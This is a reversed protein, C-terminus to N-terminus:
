EDYVFHGKRGNARWYDLEAQTIPSPIYIGRPDDDIWIDADYFDKKPKGDCYIVDLGYTEAITDDNPNRATVIKVEHGFKQAQKAFNLWLHGDLTFTGDYDIAIKLQNGVNKQGTM